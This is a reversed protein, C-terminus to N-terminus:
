FSHLNFVMGKMLPGSRLAHIGILIDVCEDDLRKRFDDYSTVESPDELDCAYGAGTLHGRYEFCALHLSKIIECPFFAYIHVNLWVCERM